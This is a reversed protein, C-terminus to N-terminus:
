SELINKKNKFESVILARIRSALKTQSPTEVSSPVEFV